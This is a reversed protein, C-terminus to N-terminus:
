RKLNVIEELVSDATTIIRSGAQFSRQTNILQSFQETLDVNSLELKYQEIAGNGSSGSTNNAASLALGGIPNATSLSGFLNGDIRVLASPDQYKQLLIKGRTFEAGNSLKLTIDGATNVAFGLIQPAKAEIEADTFAGGTNNTLTGGAISIGSDIRLDGVTTPATTSTLSFSLQGNVFTAEVTAAGDSLGQVRFGKETVFYGQDDIRFDGARTAYDVGGQVDRVRFFGEGNIGLDTSLGTSSLSGQGYNVKVSSLHVGEGVQMTTVNSGNGNSPSSASNRLINGFNDAYRATSGKFATSNVNAINDGIVEMGKSFAKLASVGSTLTGILAM